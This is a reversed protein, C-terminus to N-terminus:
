AAKAGSDDESIPTEQPVEQPQETAPETAPEAGAGGQVPTLKPEGGPLETNGAQQASEHANRYAAAIAVHLTEDVIGNRRLVENTQRLREVLSFTIAKFWAPNKEFQTEIAKASVKVVEVDTLAVASASRRKGDMASLEGLCAGSRLIALPIKTGGRSKFIEVQGERIVYFFDGLDNERFITEGAKFRVIGGSEDKQAESM